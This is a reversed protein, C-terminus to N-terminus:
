ATPDLYYFERRRSLRPYTSSIFSHYHSIYGLKLGSLKSPFNNWDIASIIGRKGDDHLSELAHAIMAGRLGKGRHAPDVWTNYACGYDPNFRAILGHSHQYPKVAIWMYGVLDSNYSVGICRSIGQKINAKDIHNISYKYEAIYHDVLDASLFFLRYKKDLEPKSLQEISYVKEIHQIGVKYFVSNFVEIIGARIGFRKVTDIYHKM